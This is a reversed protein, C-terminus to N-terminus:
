GAHGQDGRYAVAVGHKAEKRSLGLKRLRAELERKEEALALRQPRLGQRIATALKALASM